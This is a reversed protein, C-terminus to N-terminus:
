FRLVFASGEGEQSRCTITGGHMRMIQRSLSLGIGSGNQKTTFFPVFIKEQVEKSIGSGNDAVEISISGSRDLRASLTISREDRAQVAHLSNKILNILVQEILEPDANIELTNPDANAMFAVSHASLEARFLQEVHKFLDAISIIRFRPKPILTLSRYADVFHLLGQSRKEITHLAGKLDDSMEAPQQDPNDRHDLMGAATSALSSIPTVSNMIEHTLVRILKQWAEMEKEELESRINQLSVLTYRQERLRIETANIVLQLPEPIEELRFLVRDGPQLKFLVAVLERSVPELARITTLHNVRLLRKATTNMLGITGDPTFSILGVGVHQIITQLFNSQEERDARVRRFENMVDNFSTALLDFSAGRKRQTFSQSFDAYRIADLFRSLDVNTKEVFRVLAITQLVAVICVVATTAYFTTNLPLFVAFLLTAVLFLLRVLVQFRFSKFVM